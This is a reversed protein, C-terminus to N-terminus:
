ELMRFAEQGMIADSIQVKEFREPSWIEFRDVMGVLVAQDKIGAAETMHNPLTIRGAKDVAVVEAGGGILRRLAPKGPDSNAMTELQQAVKDMVEPPMVRLCTGERAKPWIVMTFQFDPDDPRWKSPVQLRRKDDLGFRYTSYYTRRSTGNPEM